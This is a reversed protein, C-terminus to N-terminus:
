ERREFHFPYPLYSRIIEGFRAIEAPTSSPNKIEYENCLCIWVNRFSGYRAAIYKLYPTPDGGNRRAKLTSRSAVDDPGALILDAILDNKYTTQM